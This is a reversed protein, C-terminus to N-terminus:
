FGLEKKLKHDIWMRAYIPGPRVAGARLEGNYNKVWPWWATYSYQIPLWLYPARDLMEVTLDKIMRQRLIESRTRHFEAVQRDVDPDSFISPNWQQGTTFSKRLSTTPNVHGSNMLYAPAHTKSTMTSLYAAHEMPDIELHVGIKSLYDDILPILDMNSPSCSCVQAKVTFGDPYGAEVLLRKAKAPDYGFLEQVSAPMSELPEFYGTFDPHMPYAFLEAHGGYFLDAIERQNVALNIARRVRVDDFPKQDTRLAMFNGVSSLSRVWKLEPTTEKLHDVAIWRIAELIDLKGTRLATLFTAEDKITRYNIEDVFPIEYQQGGLKERDWYAPNRQYTQSHGQIFDTLQFPGTGVANRWNKADVDAMERPVIASYYGYGFRYAWEVNFESFEFVVTHKDRAEVKAIHDFYTSIKKPSADLRYYSFVVDEADLERSKMVGPKDPFRIGRRLHIVLTLPTEWEWSEALEGRLADDPLYAESRFIYKGGKRVSKELDAAFLQEYFMGTDHNLKWNWDTPDWSLASLTVTVTGIDLTGGYQPEEPAQAGAGLCFLILLAAVLSLRNRIPDRM